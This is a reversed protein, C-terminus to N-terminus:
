DIFYIELIVYGKETATAGQIAASYSGPALTLLLAADKSGAPIPFGGAATMIATLTSDWDDNTNVLTTGKYVTLVPNALTSGVGVASLGPGVARVLVRRPVTGGVIFGSTLTQGPVLQILTSINLLPAATAVGPTPLAPQHPGDIVTVNSAVSGTNSLNTQYYVTVTVAGTAPGRVDGLVDIGGTTATFTYTGAAGFKIDGTIKWSTASYSGPTALTLTGLINYNDTRSYPASITADGIVSFARCTTLAALFLLLLKM